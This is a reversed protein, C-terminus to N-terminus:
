CQVGGFKSPCFGLCIKNSISNVLSNSVLSSVIVEEKQGAGVCVVTVQLTQAFLKWWSCPIAFSDSFVPRQLESVLGTRISHSASAPLLAARLYLQGEIPTPLLATLNRARELTIHLHGETRVYRLGIQVQACERIAPPLHCRSAEFVGSDGAVSENSVAASVSRTNSSSSARSVLVAALFFLEM